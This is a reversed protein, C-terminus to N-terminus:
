HKMNQFHKVITPFCQKQKWRHSGLGKNDVDWTRNRRWSPQNSLGFINARTQSISYISVTNQHIKHPYGEWVAITSFNGIVRLDIIFIATQPRCGIVNEGWSTKINQIKDEHSLPKTPRLNWSWINKVPWWGDSGEMGPHHNVSWVFFINSAKHCTSPKLHSSCGGM